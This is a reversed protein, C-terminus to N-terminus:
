RDRSRAWEDRELAKDLGEATCGQDEYPWPAMVRPMWTASVIQSGGGPLSARLRRYKRADGVATRAIAREVALAVQRIPGETFASGAPRLTPENLWDIILWANITEERNIKSM